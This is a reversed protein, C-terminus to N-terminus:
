DTWFCIFLPYAYVGIDLWVLFMVDLTCQMQTM